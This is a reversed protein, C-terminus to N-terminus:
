IIKKVRVRGQAKHIWDKNICGIKTIDMKINNGYRCTPIGLLRKGEPKGGGFFFQTYKKVYGMLEVHGVWIVRRYKM